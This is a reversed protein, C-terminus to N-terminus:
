VSRDYSITWSLLIWLAIVINLILIFVNWGTIPPIWLPILTEIYLEIIIPLAEMRQPIGSFVNLWVLLLQGVTTFGAAIGYAYLFQNSFLSGVFYNVSRQRM